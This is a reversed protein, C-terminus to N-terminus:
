HVFFEVYVRTPYPTVVIKRGFIQRLYKGYLSKRDTNQDKNGIKDLAFAIGISM